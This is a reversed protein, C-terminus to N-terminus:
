RRGRNTLKFFIYTVAVGAFFVLIYNTYPISPIQPTTQPPNDNAAVETDQKNNKKRAKKQPTPKGYLDQEDYALWMGLDSSEANIQCSTYVEAKSFKFKTYAIAFGDCVMRLNIDEGNLVTYRLLRNYRDKNGTKTDPKMEITKGEILTKLHEKADGGFETSMEPADIGIMRVREGSEVVYTDGDIVRTVKAKQAICIQSFLFFISVIIFRM